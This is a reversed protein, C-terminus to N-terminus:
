TSNNIYEYFMAFTVKCCTKSDISIIIIHSFLEVQSDVGTLCLNSLCDSSGDLQPFFLHFLINANNSETNNKSKKVISKCDKSSCKKEEILSCNAPAIKILLERKLHAKSKHLLEEKQLEHDIYSEM